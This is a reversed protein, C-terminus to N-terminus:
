RLAFSLDGHGTAYRSLNGAGDRFLGGGTELRPADFQTFSWADDAGALVERIAPDTAFSTMCTFPVAASARARLCWARGATTCDPPRASFERAATTTSAM